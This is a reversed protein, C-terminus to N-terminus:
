AQFINPIEIKNIKPPDINLKEDMYPPVFKQQPTEIKNSKENLFPAV